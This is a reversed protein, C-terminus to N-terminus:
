KQVNCSIDDAFMIIFGILFIMTGRLHIVENQNGLNELLAKNEKITFLPQVM